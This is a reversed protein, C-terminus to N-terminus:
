FQMRSNKMRGLVDFTQELPALEPEARLSGEARITYTFSENDRVIPRDVNAQLVVDQAFAEPAVALAAAFVARWVLSVGAGSACKM